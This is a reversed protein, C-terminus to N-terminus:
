LYFRVGVNIQFNGADLFDSISLQPLEIQMPMAAGSEIEVPDPIAQDARDRIVAEMSAYGPVIWLYEFSVAFRRGVYIELGLGAHYSNTPGTVTGLDHIDRAGLGGLVYISLHETPLLYLVGTLRWKSTFSLEGTEAASALNYSLQAGLIRFLRLRLALEGVFADHRDMDLPQLRTWGLEAGFGLTGISNSGARATSMLAPSFSFSM